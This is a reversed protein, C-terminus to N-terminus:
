SDVIDSLYVAAILVNVYTEPTEACFYLPNLWVNVAMSVFHRTIKRASVKILFRCKDHFFYIM